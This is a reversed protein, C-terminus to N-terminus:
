ILQTAFAVSEHGKHSVELESHLGLDAAMYWEIQWQVKKTTVHELCLGDILKEIHLFKTLQYCTLRFSVKGFWNEYIPRNGTRNVLIIPEGHIIKM